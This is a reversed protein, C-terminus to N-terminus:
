DACGDPDVAHCVTVTYISDSDLVLWATIKVSGRQWVANGFRDTTKQFDSPLAAGIDGAILASGRDRTYQPAECGLSWFTAGPHGGHEIDCKQVVPPLTATVGYSELFPLDNVAGKISSFDRDSAPLVAAFFEKWQAIQANSADGSTARSQVTASQAVAFSCTAISLLAVAIVGAVFKM